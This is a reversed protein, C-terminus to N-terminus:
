NEEDLVQGIRHRLGSRQLSLLGLALPNDKCCFLARAEKPLFPISGPQDDSTGDCLFACAHSALTDM